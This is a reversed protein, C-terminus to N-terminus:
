KFQLKGEFFRKASSAREVGSIRNIKFIKFVM